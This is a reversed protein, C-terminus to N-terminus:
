PPKNGSLKLLTFWGIDRWWIHDYTACGRPKDGLGSKRWWIHCDCGVESERRGRRERLAGGRPGSQALKTGNPRGLFFSPRFRQDQSLGHIPCLTESFAAGQSDLGFFSAPGRYSTKEMPKKEEIDDKHHFCFPGGCPFSCSNGKSYTTFIFHGISALGVPLPSREQQPGIRLTIRPFVRRCRSLWLLFDLQM